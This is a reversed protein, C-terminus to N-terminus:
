AADDPGEIWGAMRRFEARYAIARNGLRGAENVVSQRSGAAAAMVIRNAIAVADDCLAIGEVCPALADNVDLVVRTAVGRRGPVAAPRDLPTPATSLAM